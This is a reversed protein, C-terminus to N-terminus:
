DEDPLSPLFCIVFAIAPPQDVQVAILEAHVTSQDSVAGYRNVKHQKSLAAVACWNPGFFGPSGLHTEVVRPCCASAGDYRVADEARLMGLALADAINCDTMLLTVYGLHETHLAIPYFREMISTQESLTRTYTWQYLFFRGKAERAFLSPAIFSLALLIRGILLAHSLKPALCAVSGADRRRM